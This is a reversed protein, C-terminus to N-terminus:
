RILNAWVRADEAAQRSHDAALGAALRAWGPVDPGLVSYLESWLEALREDRNIRQETTTPSSGVIVRVIDVHIKEPRRGDGDRITTM